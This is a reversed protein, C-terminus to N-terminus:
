KQGNSWGRVDVTDIAHDFMSVLNIRDLKPMDKNDKMIKNKELILSKLTNNKLSSMQRDLCILGKTDQIEFAVVIKM